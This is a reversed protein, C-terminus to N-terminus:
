LISYSPNSRIGVTDLIPYTKFKNNYVKKAKTKARKLRMKIASESKELRLAIEKIPMAQHYKMLLLSRDTTPINELIYKLPREMSEITMSPEIHNVLVHIKEMGDPHINISKKKKRILDICYNYTISYIWTSFKAKGEFKGLNLLIKIFIDQVADKATTEEKLLSLCKGYVKVSYKKYLQNFYNANQTALYYNIIAEDSLKEISNLTSTEKTTTM